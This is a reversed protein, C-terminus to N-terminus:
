IQNHTSIKENCKCSGVEDMGKNQLNA